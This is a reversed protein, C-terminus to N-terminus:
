RELEAYAMRHCRRCEWECDVRSLRLADSAWSETGCHPCTVLFDMLMSTAIM